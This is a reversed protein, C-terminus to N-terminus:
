PSTPLWIILHWISSHRDFGLVRLFKIVAHTHLILQPPTSNKPMMELELVCVRNQVSKWESCVGMRQELKVLQFMMCFHNSQISYFLISLVSLISQYFQYFQNVISNISSISIISLVSLISQYFQYFQNFLISLVSLISQYIITLISLTKSHILVCLCM